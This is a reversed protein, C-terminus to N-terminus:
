SNKTSVKSLGELSEDCKWNSELSWFSEIQNMTSKSSVRHTDIKWNKENEDM